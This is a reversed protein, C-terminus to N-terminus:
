RSIMQGFQNTINIPYQPLIQKFINFFKATYSLIFSEIITLDGDLTLILMWM